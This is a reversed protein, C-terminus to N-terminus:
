RRVVIESRSTDKESPLASFSRNSKESAPKPCIWTQGCDTMTRSGEGSCKTDSVIAPAAVETGAKVRNLASARASRAVAIAPSSSGVISRYVSPSSNAKWNDVFTTTADQNPVSMSSSLARLTFEWAMRALSMMVRVSTVTGLLCRQGVDHPHQVGIM